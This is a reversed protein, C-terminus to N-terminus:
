VHENEKKQNLITNTTEILQTRRLQPDIGADEMALLVGGVVPPVKLQVLSACPAATLLTEALTEKILPHGDYISGILVVDFMEDKLELQNIVGLAMGGLERGAWRMVEMAQADGQRATEFVLLVMAPDFPYRELYLGEILEDLNQAATHALFAQSLGTVPGRKTWEYTVARMARALIDAGGAAEGSWHGAGGVVRAQRQHDRSIGRCNCGTGSVIAIGWGERSGAIIGLVTDNVLRSPTRIGAATLADIHAAEQSPWDFGALGLGASTIQSLTIGAENVARSTVNRLSDTLGAYGVVEWSGPGGRTFGLAQGNEDAVLAHTKTGGGDIGLFYRM